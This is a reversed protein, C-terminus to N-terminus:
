LERPKLKGIEEKLRALYLKRRNAVDVMTQFKDDDALAIPDDFEWAKEVVWGLDDGGNYWVSQLPMRDAPYCGQILVLGVISGTEYDKRGQGSTLWGGPHQRNLRSRYDAMMAETPTSKSAAVLVWEPTPNTSELQQSLPWTRNEVNKKGTVLADAWPQKVKVIKMGLVNLIAATPPAELGPPGPDPTERRLYKSLPVDEESDDSDEEEEDLVKDENPVPSGPAPAADAPPIASLSEGAAVRALVALYQQVTAPKVTIRWYPGTPLGLARGADPSRILKAVREPHEHTPGDAYAKPDSAIWAEAAAYEENSLGNSSLIAMNRLRDPIRPDAVQSSGRITVPLTLTMRSGQGLARSETKHNSFSGHPWGVPWVCILPDGTRPNPAAPILGISPHGASVLLANFQDMHAEWDMFYPGAVKERWARFEGGVRGEYYAEMCVLLAAPTLPGVILTAGDEIGTGGTLQALMQAGHRRIWATTSPDSSAVHARLNAILVPPAMQDHHIELASGKVPKFIPHPFHKPLGPQLGLTEMLKMGEVVMPLAVDPILHAWKGFGKASWSGAMNGM